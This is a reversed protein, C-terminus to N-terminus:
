TRSAARVRSAHQVRRLTRRYINEAMLSSPRKAHIRLRWGRGKRWAPRERRGADDDAELTQRQDPRVDALVTDNLQCSPCYETSAEVIKLPTCCTVLGREILVRCPRMAVTDPDALGNVLGIDPPRSAPDVGIPSDVLAVLHNIDVQTLRAVRRRRCGEKRLGDCPGVYPWATDRRVLRRGVRRRQPGHQWLRLMDRAFHLLLPNLTVM